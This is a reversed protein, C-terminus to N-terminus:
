WADKPAQIEVVVQRIKSFNTGLRDYEEPDAQCFLKQSWETGFFPLLWASFHRVGSGSLIQQDHELEKVARLYKKSKRFCLPIAEM